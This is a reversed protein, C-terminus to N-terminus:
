HIHGDDVTSTGPQAALTSMFQALDAKVVEKQAQTLTSKPPMSGDQTRTYCRILEDFTIRRSGNLVLTKPAGQTGRGDHCTGCHQAASLQQPGTGQQLAQAPVNAPQQPQVVSMRGSGDVQVTLQQTTNGRNAEMALMAVYANHQQRSQAEQMSLYQSQLAAQSEQAQLAFAQSSEQLRIARDMFLASDGGYSASATQVGYVSNGGPALLYPFQSPYVNNFIFNQSPAVYAPAAYPAHYTNCSYRCRRGLLGCRGCALLDSALILVICLVILIRKM